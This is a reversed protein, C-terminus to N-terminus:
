GNTNGGNLAARSRSQAWDESSHQYVPPNARGHNHGEVYAREVLTRLRANEEELVAIRKDQPLSAPWPGVTWGADTFHLLGYDMLRQVSANDLTLSGDNNARAVAEVEGMLKEATM